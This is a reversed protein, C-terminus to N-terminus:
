QCLSVIQEKKRFYITNIDNSRTQVSPYPVFPPSLCAKYISDSLSASQNPVSSALSCTTSALGARLAEM